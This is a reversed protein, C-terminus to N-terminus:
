DSRALSVISAPLSEILGVMVFFVDETEGSDVSVQRLSLSFFGEKQAIVLYLSPPVSMSCVGQGNTVCSYSNWHMVDSAVVTAGELPLQPPYPPPAEAFLVVEADIAGLTSRTGVIGGEPWQEQAGVADLLLLLSLLLYGQTKDIEIV